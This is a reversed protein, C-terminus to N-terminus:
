VMKTLTFINHDDYDKELGNCIYSHFKGEEFGVVEYGLSNAEVDIPTKNILLKDIGLGVKNSKSYTDVDELFGDVFSEPLGIEIIMREDLENLFVGSFDRALNVTTFINSYLFMDKEFQHLVWKEMEDFSDKSLHLKNSYNQKNLHSGGWLININPHFECICNSLSVIKEPLLEKDMYSARGVPSLIYFGASIYKM